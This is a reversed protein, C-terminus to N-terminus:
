RKNVIPDITTLCFVIRDTIFQKLVKDDNAIPQWQQLKNIGTQAMNVIDRCDERQNINKSHNNEM